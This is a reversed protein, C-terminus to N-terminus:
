RDALKFKPLKLGDITVKRNDVQIAGQLGKEGTIEEKGEIIRPLGMLVYKQRERDQGKIDMFWFHSGEKGKHEAKPYTVHCNKDKLYNYPLYHFNYIRLAEQMNEEKMNFNNNLSIDAIYYPNMHYSIGQNTIEVTRIKVNNVEIKVSGYGLPKARGIKHCLDYYPKGEVKLDSEYNLNLVAILDKLYQEKVNEFYIKFQFSCGEKVPTIACNRKTKKGYSIQPTHHWYLKRGRIGIEGIGINRKNKQSTEFVYNWDIKKGAQQLLEENTLYLSYFLANSSHPSALEDIVRVKAYPNETGFYTADTIRIKSGKADESAVFGFLDCAECLHNNDICPHYSTEVNNAVNLLTSLKREYIRGANKAVFRDEGDVTSMCSDTFVEFDSRLMGRIESGPIVPLKYGNREEGYHYFSYTCFDFPNGKNDTLKEKKVNQTDPVFTETKTTLTCEIYGTLNGQRAEKRERKCGAQNLGVFNYPNIYSASTDVEIRALGSVGKQKPLDLWDQNQM